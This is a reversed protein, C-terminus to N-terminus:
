PWSQATQLEDEPGIAMGDLRKLHEDVSEHVVRGAALDASAEQLAIDLECENTGNRCGPAPGPSRRLHPRDSRM